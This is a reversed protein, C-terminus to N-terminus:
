EPATDCQVRGAESPGDVVREPPGRLLRKVLEESAIGISRHLRWMAIQHGTDRFAQWWALVHLYNTALLTGDIDFVVGARNNAVLCPTGPYRYRCVRGAT